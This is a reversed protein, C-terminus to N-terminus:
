RPDQRSAQTTQWDRLADKIRKNEDLVADLATQAVTLEDAVRDLFARIEDPDLGRRRTTFCRARIQWPRLPRYASPPAANVPRRHTPQRHQRGLLHRLLTRM